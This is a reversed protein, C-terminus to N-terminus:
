HGFPSCPALRALIWDASDPCRASAWPDPIGGTGMDPLLMRTTLSLFQHVKGFGSVWVAVRLPALGGRTAASPLLSLASM